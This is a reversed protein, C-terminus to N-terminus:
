NYNLFFVNTPLLGIFAKKDKFAASVATGRRIGIQKGHVIFRKGSSSCTSLTVIRDQQTVSIEVNRYRKSLIQNVFRGFEEDATFGVQYVDDDAAAEYWAFVEYRLPQTPTYITFCRNKQFYDEKLYYNKLSGFMSQDKMNHGYLITHSDTFDASCQSDIFISGAPNKTKDAMQYLYEENDKGQVIPYSIKNNDFLIWATIDENIQRLKDFDIKVDRYDFSNTISETSNQTKKDKKRHTVATQELKKYSDSSRKPEATIRAIQCFAVLILCIGAIAFIRHLRSNGFVSKKM